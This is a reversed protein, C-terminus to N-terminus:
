HLLRDPTLKKRAMPNLGPICPLLGCMRIFRHVREGLDAAQPPLCVWDTRRQLHADSLKRLGFRSVVWLTYGWGELLNRLEAVSRGLRALLRPSAELIICPQETLILDEGGLLIDMEAGEADMFLARIHGLQPALNDLTTMQVRIVNFLPLERPGRLHGVGSNWGEQPLCFEAIGSTAGLAVPYVKVNAWCNAEVQRYLSRVCSPMPEFAHVYGEKGVIDRFGVTETGVNAGVEVITDGRM